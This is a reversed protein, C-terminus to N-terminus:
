RGCFVPQQCLAHRRWDQVVGLKVRHRPIAPIQDGPSAQINGNPGTFTGNSGPTDAKDPNNGMNHPNRGRLIASVRGSTRYQTPIKERNDLSLNGIRRVGKSTGFFARHRVM